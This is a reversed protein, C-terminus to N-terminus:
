SEERIIYIPRNKSELYIKSIYEGIIGLCFLQIGGILSMICVMSPWGSTPDGWIITKIFIFIILLLSILCFLLGMFTAIALPATTFAVIGEISYLFLKWFSWKTQGASRKENEYELWKTKFGVWSFLGKSFRNYEPLSLIADVMSKKMMIFDRAGNVIKVKSFKNILKYFMNAFFSRVPPEGKRTTRRTRVCDFDEDQLIKYMDPILRPPDQLDVDMVVVYEGNAKQLGAFMAAEKGFNRSLSIYRIFSNKKEKIVKLTNDNSGDDVFIVEYNFDSLRNEIEECFIPIAEEENYCPVVISIKDMNCRGKKSNIIEVILEITITFKTKVYYQLNRM